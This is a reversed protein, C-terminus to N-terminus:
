RSAKGRQLLKVKLKVIRVGWSFGLGVAGTRAILKSDLVIRM